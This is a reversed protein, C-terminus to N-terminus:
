VHARGIQVGQGRASEIVRNMVPAMEAVRETADPCWHRDWMDCVVIATRTSEWTVLREEARWTNTSGAEIGRQRAHLTLPGAEATLGAFWGAATLVLLSPLPHHSRHAM